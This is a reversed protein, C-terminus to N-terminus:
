GPLGALAAQLTDLDIPKVLHRDFGAETALLRDSDQGYGTIAVLLARSTEPQARLHRALEYGDMGPLGIDLLCVRPQEKRARELAHLPEHEVMVRHGSAELLMALTSAADVNDDVVMISVGGDSAAARTDHRPAAPAAPAARRPLTVTFRSGRGPGDSACTVTGGHLEVLSKVLALGLGLGGSARDSTREAQAFLDFARAALEPAMGIGNDVVDVTVAGDRLRARLHLRGGEQTYKAANNLLNALVQVLRKKDGMVPMDHAPVDVDLQQGRARVLPMVQEVADTVIERMDLAAEDLEVQGRTVRSVDLLDDILETMHAVQRGIIQSTKRVLGEDLRARQLLAAAAGIPALPNRLEHALMALFEDKRRDSERLKEEALKRETIDSAAGIWEHIEGRADLMPVARSYTWGVSGDLRRVRHELEFVAKARIAAAIAQHIREQDQAPIYDDIWYRSADSTDKLYGRGDLQRLQSWDPSMRYVVDATANTLARYRVESDRLAAESRVQETVDNTTHSICLLSGDAAFIPTSVASWFREEFGPEGNPLTVPIPYRQAPLRDPLGTEVVRALSRRLDTEGTDAPDDPNRPFAEFLSRGVLEERKRGSAALFTDNVALIIAEPTPSLLYHGIPSSNFVAEFLAPSLM